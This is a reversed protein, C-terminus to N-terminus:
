LRDTLRRTIKLRMWQANVISREHYGTGILGSEDSAEMRLRIHYGDFSEIEVIMSVTAGLVTPAEHTVQASKGVSMFGEPLRSDVLEVCSEIMMAVLSPTSLLKGVDTNWYNGATDEENVIRRVLHRDGLVIGPFKM